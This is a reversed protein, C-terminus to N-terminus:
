AGAGKIGPTFTGTSLLYSVIHAGSSIQSVYLLSNTLHVVTAIFMYKKGMSM